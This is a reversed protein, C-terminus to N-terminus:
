DTTYRSINLLVGSAFLLATLASGGYSIFPFPIGTLPTIALVSAMNIFAQMIIWSTIGTALLRGFTDPAHEAIRYGRFAIVM